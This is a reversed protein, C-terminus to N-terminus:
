PGNLIRLFCSDVLVSASKTRARQRDPRITGDEHSVTVSGIIHQLEVFVALKHFGEAARTLFFSFEFGTVPNRQVSPLTLWQQEDTIAVIVTDFVPIQISM